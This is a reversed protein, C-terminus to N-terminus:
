GSGKVEPQADGPLARVPPQLRALQGERREQWKTFEKDFDEGEVDFIAEWTGFFLIIAIIFMPVLLFSAIVSLVTIDLAFGLYLLGGMAAYGAIGNRMERRRSAIFAKHQQTLQGERNEALWASRRRM